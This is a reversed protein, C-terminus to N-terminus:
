SDRPNGVSKQALDALEDIRSMISSMDEKIMRGFVGVLQPCLDSDHPDESDTRELAKSHATIREAHKHIEELMASPNESTTHM